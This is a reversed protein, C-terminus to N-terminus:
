LCQWPRRAPPWSLPPARLLEALTVAQVAHGRECEVLVALFRRAGQRAQPAVAHLVEVVQPQRGVVRPM